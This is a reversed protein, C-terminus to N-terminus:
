GWALQRARHYAVSTAPVPCPIGRGTRCSRARPQQCAHAPTAASGAACRGAPGCLRVGSSAGGRHLVARGAHVRVPREARTGAGRVRCRDGVGACTGPRSAVRSGATSAEPERRLHDRERDAPVQASPFRTTSGSSRAGPWSSTWSATIAQRHRATLAPCGPVQELGIGGALLRAATKPGIGAIGRISDVPDGTLARYDPWQPATVGFQGAPLRRHPPPPGPDPHLHRRCPNPVARRAAADEADFAVVIEHGPAAELHTKRLIALFGFVGTLDRTKGRSMIRRDSFGHWSRYLLRHGDVALLPSAPM